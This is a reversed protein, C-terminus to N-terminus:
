SYSKANKNQLQKCIEIKLKDYEYQPDNHIDKFKVYYKGMDIEFSESSNRFFDIVFEKVCNRMYVKLNIKLEDLIKLIISRIKESINDDLASSLIKYLEIFDKNLYIKDINVCGNKANDYELKDKVTINFYTDGNKYENILGDEECGIEGVIENKLQLKMMGQNKMVFGYTILYTIINLSLIRFYDFGFGLDLNHILFLINSESGAPIKIIKNKEYNNKQSIEKIEFDKKLDIIFEGNTSDLWKNIIGIFDVIEEVYANIYKNNIIVYNLM